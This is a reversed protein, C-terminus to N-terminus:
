VSDFDLKFFLKEFYILREAAGLPSADGKAAESAGSATGDREAGLVDTAGVSMARFLVGAASMTVDNVEAIIRTAHATDTDGM